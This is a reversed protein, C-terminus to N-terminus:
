PPQMPLWALSSDVATLGTRPHASTPLASCVAQRTPPPPPVEPLARAAKHAAIQWTLVTLGIDREATPISRPQMSQDAQLARKMPTALQHPESDAPLKLQTTALDMLEELSEEPTRQNIHANIAEYQRFGLVTELM